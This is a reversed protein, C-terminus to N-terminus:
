NSNWSIFKHTHHRLLLLPHSWPRSCYLNIGRCKRPSSHFRLSVKLNAPARATARVLYRRLAFWVCQSKLHSTPGWFIWWLPWPMNNHRWTASVTWKTTEKEVSVAGLNRTTLNDIFFSNFLFHDHGLRLIIGTDEKLYQPFEHFM